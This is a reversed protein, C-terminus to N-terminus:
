ESVGAFQRWILSLVLAVMFAALQVPTANGSLIEDMVAQTTEADLHEGRVLSTLLNPWTFDM